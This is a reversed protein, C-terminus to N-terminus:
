PMQCTAKFIHLFYFQYLDLVQRAIVSPARAYGSKESVRVRGFNQACTPNQM